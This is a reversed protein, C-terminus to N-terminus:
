VKKRYLAPDGGEFGIEAKARQGAECWCFGLHGGYIIGTDYCTKCKALAAQQSVVEPAFVPATIAPATGSFLPLDETTFMSMQTPKM